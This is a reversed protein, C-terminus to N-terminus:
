KTRPAREALKKVESTTGIREVSIAPWLYNRPCFCVCGKEAFRLGFFKEPPGELGAPQRITYNVTSHFVAIGPAKGTLREPKLLYAETAIGPEVEYSVLQRIVGETRDEEVVTLKPAAKRQAPMPGLFDLWWRRLEERRTKWGESSTIKRDESDTLLDSLQPADAPLMAPPQQIEALWPVDRTSQQAYMRHGAVLSVGLLASTKIATRRTLRSCNM